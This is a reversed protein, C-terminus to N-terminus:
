EVISLEVRCEMCSITFDLFDKLNDSMEGSLSRSLHIVIHPQTDPKKKLENHVEKFVQLITRFNVRRIIRIHAIGEHDILVRYSPTRILFTEEIERHDIGDEKM